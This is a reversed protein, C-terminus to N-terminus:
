KKPIFELGPTQVCSDATSGNGPSQAMSVDIQGPVLVMMTYPRTVYVGPALPANTQSSPVLLRQHPLSNTFPAHGSALPAAGKNAAVSMGALSFAVATNILSPRM